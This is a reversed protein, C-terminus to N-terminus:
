SKVAIEFLKDALQKFDESGECHQLLSSNLLEAGYFAGALSGAMSAITDTDGGLSIAYQVTKRFLNDTKIEDIEKSAVLFCYIATPVSYLARSSHGLRNLIEEDSPM